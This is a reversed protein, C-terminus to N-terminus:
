SPLGELLSSPSVSLAQAIRVLNVVGINREGREVGGVYTRDLGSRFALEEQSWQKTERQGRVTEGVFRLIAARSPATKGGM